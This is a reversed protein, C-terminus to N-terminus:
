MKILPITTTGITSVGKLKKNTPNCSPIVCDLKPNSLTGHMTSGTAGDKVIQSDERGGVCAVYFVQVFFPTLLLM